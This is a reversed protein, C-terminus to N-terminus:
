NLAQKKEQGYNYLQIKSTDKSMRLNTSLQKDRKITDLELQLDQSNM